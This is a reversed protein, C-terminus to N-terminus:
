YLELEAALLQVIKNFRHEPLEKEAIALFSSVAKGTDTHSHYSSWKNTENNGEFAMGHILADHMDKLHKDSFYRWLIENLLPEKKEMLRFGTVAFETFSSFMNNVRNRNAQVELSMAAIM